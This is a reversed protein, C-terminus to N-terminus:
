RTGLSATRLMFSQRNLRPIEFKVSERASTLLTPLLQLKNLLFREGANATMLQHQHHKEVKPTISLTFHRSHSDETFYLLRTSSVLCLDIIKTMGYQRLLILVTCAVITFHADFIRPPTSAVYM